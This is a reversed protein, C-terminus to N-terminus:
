EKTKISIDELEHKISIFSININKVYKVDITTNDIWMTQNIFHINKVERFVMNNVTVFDCILLFTEQGKKRTDDLTLPYEKITKIIDTKNM